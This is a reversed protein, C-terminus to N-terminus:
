IALPCFIARMAWPSPTSWANISSVPPRRSHFCSRTSPCNAPSACPFPYAEHEFGARVAQSVQQLIAAASPNDSLDARLVVPNIFYGVVRATARDRRAKPVGVLIDNQNTYRHLFIQFAALLTNFASSTCRQNYARLRRAVASGLRFSYAGGRGSQLLPRPHDLALDLPMLDGSLTDLWYAEDQRAKESNLYQQQESVFDAM